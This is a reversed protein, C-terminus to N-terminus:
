FIFIGEALEFSIGQMIISGSEAAIVIFDEHYTINFDGMGNITSNDSFDISDSSTSFNTITDTGFSNNFIFVDRGGNGSLTDNGLGGSIIDNGTGGYITDDGNGGYVTLNSNRGFITDNGNGGYVIAIGSLVEIFDDGMGGDVITPGGGVRILDDGGLGFYQMPESNNGFISIGTLTDQYESGIITEINEFSVWGNNTEVIGNPLWASVGSTSSEFSLTDNGEGGDIRGINDTNVAGIMGSNIAFNITDDGGMLSIEGTYSSGTVTDDFETGILHEISEVTDIDGNHTVQGVSFDAVIGTFLGIYSLTDEGDGGIVTNNGEGPRIIDNGDGGDLVDSGQRGILIDNGGNGELLDDTLGGHLTDEQESGWLHLDGEGPSERAVVVRIVEYENSFQVSFGTNSYTVAETTVVTSYGEIENGTTSIRELWAYGIGGFNTLNVTVSGTFDNAALFVIAKADDEYAFISYDQNRDNDMETTYIQQTGVLSESMQRYVEAYPSYVPAGEVGVGSLITGYGGWAGVGWNAAYDVGLEFMGSFLSLASGAAPLGYNIDGSLVDASSASWASMYIETDSSAGGAEDILRQMTTIADRIGWDDELASVGSITADLGSHIISIVDIEGFLDTANEDSFNREIERVFDGGNAQMSVRFDMEPHATRFDRIATLAGYSYASYSDLDLASDASFYNYNWGFFDENGLEVIFDDPLNGNNYARNLFLEELFETVDSVLETLKIHDSAVFAVKIGDGDPDRNVPAKLYQFEPLVLSYSSETSVAHQLSESFSSIGGEALLSPHILEPNSLSFAHVLNGALFDTYQQTQSSYGNNLNNHTFSWVGGAEVMFGDPLEGDPFRILNLSLDDFVEAFHDDYDVGNSLGRINISIGGFMGASIPGAVLGTVTNVVHNSDDFNLTTSM